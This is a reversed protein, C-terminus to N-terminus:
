FAIYYHLVKLKMLTQLILKVLSFIEITGEQDSFIVQWLNQLEEYHFPM